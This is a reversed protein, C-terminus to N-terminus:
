ARRSEATARDIETAAEDLTTEIDANTLCVGTDKATLIESERGNM